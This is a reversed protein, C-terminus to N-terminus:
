ATAAPAARELKGDRYYGYLWDDLKPEAVYELDAPASSALREHIRRDFAIVDEDSFANDLSLMPVKLSSWWRVHRSRPYM